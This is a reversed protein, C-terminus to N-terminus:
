FLFPQSILSLQRKSLERALPQRLHKAFLKMTLALSGPNVGPEAVKLRTVRPLDTDGHRLTRIQSVPIAVARYGGTPKHRSNFSALHESCCSSYYCEFSVQQKFIISYFSKFICHLVEQPWQSSCLPHAYVKAPVQCATPTKYICRNAKRSEEGFGQAQPKDAWNVSSSLFDLSKSQQLHNRLPKLRPHSGPTLVLNPPTKRSGPVQRELLAALNRKM